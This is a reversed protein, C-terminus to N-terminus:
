VIRKNRTFGLDEPTPGVDDLLARLAILAGEIKNVAGPPATLQGAEVAALLRALGAAASEIEDRTLRKRGM